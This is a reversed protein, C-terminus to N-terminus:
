QGAGGARFLAPDLDVNTAVSDITWTQSADPEGNFLSRVAFPVNLGEIDRHGSYLLTYTGYQGDANRDVYTSSVLRGSSPDIALTVDVGRHRVRVRDVTAGEVTAAGLAAAAFDRDSRSRLLVVPHRWYDPETSRRAPAAMPFARGGQGIFWAGEPTMLMASSGSRQANKMTRDLRIADPFRWTTKTTIRVEGGDRTVVQSASEVYTTLADLRAGGLAAVAREILARGKRAAEAGAPMPAAAPPLYKAPAEAFRKHCDDSGFVYIKGEHVLFDSPNGMAGKGMRACLGDLQIEFKEPEREFAAKTEPSSFLYVYRGRVVKLDAKGFVDKGQVLLVPDAGDLAEIAGPTQALLPSAFSLVIGLASATRALKM